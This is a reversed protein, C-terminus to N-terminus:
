LGHSKCNSCEKKPAHPLVAPISSPPAVSPTPLSSAPSPRPPRPSLSRSSSCFITDLELVSDTLSIFAGYDHVDDITAICRPLNACLSNFAPVSPLARVFLSICIKVNYLFRASQLKVLGVRWKSVFELVQGTVCNSTHLLSLLETCDVFNCTGYFQSLTQYIFLATRTVASLSPLLGRPISGLCSVLIHQVVNDVQWWCNSAEIDHPSSSMSLIPPPTPCLDPHTPDMFASPDLIHGILGNACILM